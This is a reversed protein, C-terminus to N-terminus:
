LCGLSVPLLPFLLCLSPLCLMFCLVSVFFILLVHKLHTLLEQKKYSVRRKVWLKHCKMQWILVNNKFSLFNYRVVSTIVLRLPQIPRYKKWTSRHIPSISHLQSSMAIFSYISDSNYVNTRSCFSFCFYGCQWFMVLIWYFFLFYWVTLVNGFGTSFCFIGCQWFMVLDLLFFLFYWVTLVNGFGTSFNYFSVFDIGTAYMYTVSWNWHRLKWQPLRPLQRPLFFWRCCNPTENKIKKKYEWMSLPLPLILNTKYISEYLGYSSKKFCFFTNEKSLIDNAEHNPPAERGLGRAETINSGL